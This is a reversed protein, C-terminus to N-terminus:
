TTRIQAASEPYGLSDFIAACVDHGIHKMLTFPGMPHGLGACTATDIDEATTVGDRVLACAQNLFAFLTRNVIFGPSDKVYVPRRKLMLAVETTKDKTLITTETGSVIEVLPLARPPNFFHLGIVRGPPWTASAIANISLSSTNTALPCSHIRTALDGLLRQKAALDEVISEIVFDIDAFSGHLAMPALHDLRRVVEAKTIKGKDAAAKLEASIENWAMLSREYSRSVLVVDVENAIALSAIGRGMTGTGIVAIRM